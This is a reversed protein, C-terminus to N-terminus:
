EKAKAEMPLFHKSERATVTRARKYQMNQIIERAKEDEDASPIMWGATCQKECCKCMTNRRKDGNNPARLTGIRSGINRCLAEARLM